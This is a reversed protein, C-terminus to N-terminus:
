FSVVCSIIPEMCHKLMYVKEDQFIIKAELKKLCTSCISNTLEYYIYNRAAM